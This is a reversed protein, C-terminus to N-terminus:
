RGEDPDIGRWSTSSVQRGRASASRWDPLWSTDIIPPGAPPASTARAPNVAAETASEALKATTRTARTADQSPALVQEVGGDGNGQAPRQQQVDIVGAADGLSAQM